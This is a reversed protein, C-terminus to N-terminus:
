LCEFIEEIKQVFIKINEFDRNLVGLTLSTVNEGHAIKHRTTVMNNISFTINEFDEDLESKLLELISEDINMFIPRIACWKANQIKRMSRISNKCEHSLCHPTSKYDNIIMEMNTELYGSILICIYNLFHSSLEEDEINQVKGLLNNIRNEMM